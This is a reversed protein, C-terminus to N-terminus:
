QRQDDRVDSAYVTVREVGVAALIAPSIPRETNLANSIATKDVHISDAAAKHTDFDALFARVKKVVQDRTYIRM